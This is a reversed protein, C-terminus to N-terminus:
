NKSLEAKLDLLTPNTPELSLAHDLYKQAVELNDNELHALTVTYLVYINDPSIELSKELLPLAENVKNETLYVNALQLYAEPQTSDKELLNSLRSKAEEKKDHYLDLRALNVNARYNDPALNIIEGFCIYAEKFNGIEEYVLAARIKGEIDSIQYARSLDTLGEFMKNKVLRAVARGLLVKSDNPNVQLIENYVAEAKDFKKSDEFNLALKYKHGLFDLSEKENNPM